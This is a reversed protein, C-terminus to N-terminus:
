IAVKVLVARGAEFGEVDSAGRADTGDFAVIRLQPNDGRVARGDIHDRRGTKHVVLVNAAIWRGAYAVNQLRQLAHGILPNSISGDGIM